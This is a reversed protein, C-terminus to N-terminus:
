ITQSVVKVADELIDLGKELEDKRIVLPYMLRIINHFSGCRMVILGNEHCRKLIEATEATAPEKTNRDKVFETGIASGLGRVDGIIKYDQKMDQLRDLAIKGLETSRKLLGQEEVIQMTVLGAVCALPNGGFTGGLGGVDVSDMMDKRGVVASLVLGGGLSKASCLIDPVVDFNEIGWMKGTRGIGMQIDDDIFLIGYADCIKRLGQIFEKPPVIYGGEGLIPEVVLAAIDEAAVYTRFMDEIRKVCHIACDPYKLGYACRYCYAYPVRMVGIDTLGFGYKYYKVQSTLAMAMLTRGHYGGEFAIINYRGTYRRAVKVANEVAEAGSNFLHAQKPFDGPTIECLRKAMSVFPEYMLVNFATHMYRDLQEKVAMIVRDNCHGVNLCSIGSAFDVYENGDVDKVIAGKAKSVFIPAMQFEARPVYENRLRLLEYGKDGLLTRQEGVKAKSKKQV